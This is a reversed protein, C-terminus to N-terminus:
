SLPLGWHMVLTLLQNMPSLSKKRRRRSKEKREREWAEEEEWKKREEERDEEELEELEVEKLAEEYGKEVNKTKGMLTHFMVSEIFDCSTSLFLATVLVVVLLSIFIDKPKRIM